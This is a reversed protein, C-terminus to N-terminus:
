SKLVEAVGDRFLSLAYYKHFDFVIKPIDLRDITPNCALSSYRITIEGDEEEEDGEGGGGERRSGGGGCASRLIEFRHVGAFTGADDGYGIDIWSGEDEARSIEETQSSSPPHIEATAAAAAAPQTSTENSLLSINLM